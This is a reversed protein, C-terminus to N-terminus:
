GRDRSSAAHAHLGEADAIRGAVPALVRAGEPTCEILSTRKQFEYVGLPNSFRAARSTPLVHNPGACYDGFAEPAHRGLFVAGAHRIQRLLARPDAVSLELHEPAIQNSLAAAEDLDRVQILAGRHALAARVIKSRPLEPLREDMAALVRELYAADPSILISQAVEDHEAQSFLDMAVWRPDTQGDCIVVIESPGAISDIGVRGFVLRKAAAVYANGPGVIKDVAPLTATGYALAAVAQAGGVTFVRDVGALHAAGLVAPSVEGGPAPVVMIVEAVGAVKAPIANMLVSSPYAAKGGPVYLGARDLPTVVQGLRNGHADAFEFPAIRQHEAYARIRQAATELATRLDAPLSQWAAACQAPGIELEAVSRAERRDFRRTYELLAEDGRVRVDAVIAEVAAAVERSSEPARDLLAAFRASFDPQRTDLRQIEIM